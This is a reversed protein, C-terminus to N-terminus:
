RDIRELEDVKSRKSNTTKNGGFSRSYSLNFVPLRTSETYVIVQNSISFAERGLTGYNINYKEQMLLDTVSLQLSGKNNNLEKKFGLNIRVIGKVKQSGSYYVNYYSGSCEASYGKPMKFAQTTQIYYNYYTHNFPQKTYNVRYSYLSQIINYNMSWWNSIRFPLIAQLTINRFNSINQPSIYLIDHQPSETLQYRAIVNKDDSYKLSISNSKHVYGLKISSSITPQLFPNGTNVATPDSYGVYSALDNYTPRTIRKTFSLQLEAYDNMKKTFFINPFFSSLSRRVVEKNANKETMHTFANEYRLGTTISISESLKTNVSAYAAYINEKMLINSQTQPDSEWEGDILSQFGAYSNSTAMSTKVGTELQAKKGLPMTYDLKGALVHIHTNAFGQQAPASLAQTGTAADGHKNTFSGEVYYPGDNNFYLYDLGANIKGGQKLKKELYVSSVINNWVNKGSSNGDYQLLSDPLVNYFLHSFTTGSLKQNGYMMSAGITLNSDPRIDAGLNLNHSQQRVYTTDWGLAHIQGGLFPMDQHSNVYMNSYGNKYSFNYSGYLTLKSTNRSLDFGAGAKERYGYGASLNITGNTGKRRNKKMVINIIGATGEADYKASPSTLLEISAIDDGSMGNLLDLLQSESMRMLKGNLMVAVGTKGNLEISNDRKNIVVGPSRELVQLATSGKTLISNEVNVIIGEPKHQILPKESRIIVNQLTASAAVLTVTDIVKKTTTYDFSIIHNEYGIASIHLHYSGPAAQMISFTGDEKTIVNKNHSSDGARVLVVNAMAVPQLKENIVTGSIQAAAHSFIFFIILITQIIKM